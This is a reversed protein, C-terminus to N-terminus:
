VAWDGQIQERERFGKNVLTTEVMLPSVEFYAAADQIDDDNPVTESLFEMLNDLPCLFEQAFARQFKQRSTKARTAPLLPEGSPTQLCDAVLRVLTFRRSNVHRQSLSVRFGGEVKYDRIGASLPLPPLSNWESWTSKSMGFIDFLMDNPVPGSSLGWIRRAVKAAQAARQWPPDSVKGPQESLSKRIDDFQFVQVPTGHTQVDATVASLHELAKSKSAAAVEQIAGTGYQDYKGRLNELLDAPAEDPDYGLCAELKRWETLEPELRESNIEDWLEALDKYGARTTSLRAITSKVFDEIGREFDEVAIFHNYEKTYQIPEAARPVTRSCQVLVTNWDSSFSLDPWIYGGGAAGIKHHMQWELTSRSEEPEWLLRWWNGALWESLHLASLRAARRTTEELLNENDTLCTENVLISIDAQAAREPQRVRENHLWEHQIVFSNNM